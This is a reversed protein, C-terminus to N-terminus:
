QGLSGTDYKKSLNRLAEGNSPMAEHQMAVEFLAHITAEDDPLPLWNARLYVAGRIRSGPEVQRVLILAVHGAPTKAAGEDFEGPFPMRARHSRERNQKFWARDDDKWSSDVSVKLPCAINGVGGRRKIDAIQENTPNINPESYLGMGFIKVVRGFCCEGALVVNDHADLGGATRSNHEFPRSCISCVGPRILKRLQRDIRRRQQRSLWSPAPEPPPTM